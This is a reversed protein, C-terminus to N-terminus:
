LGSGFESCPGHVSRAIAAPFCTSHSFGNADLASSAAHTASAAEAEPRTTISAM